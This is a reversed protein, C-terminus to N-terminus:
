SKQHCLDSSSLMNYRKLLRVVQLVESERYNENPKVVNALHRLITPFEIVHDVGKTKLALAVRDRNKPVKTLESVVLIRAFPGEGFAKQVAKTAAEGAFNFDNGEILGITFTNEHWGKIEIAACKIGNLDEAELVVKRPPSHERQKPNYILLDIDSDPSGKKPVKYRVNARVLFGSLEFFRRVIEENVEAM